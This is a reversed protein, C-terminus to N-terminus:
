RVVYVIRRTQPDVLVPQRNIDVYRYQYDPVPRLEVAEPVGAGVVVEGELYVPQVPNSAIYTQVPQPPPSTLVDVTGGTAAGAVGGIAAGVPGAILAGAVAGTAAGAVVGDGANTSATTEYTVVPVAQPPAQTVVVTQQGQFSATLYDSYSWGTVGDSQVQCWKSNRICGYLQAQEGQGIVGIAPYHPGPGSRINLDATATVATEAAAVGTLALLAAIATASKIMYNKM